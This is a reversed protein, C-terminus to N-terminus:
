EGAGQLVKAVATRAEPFPVLAQLVNVRVETWEPAILVNIQPGGEQLDGLLKAQLEIQKQIRDVARLSISHQKAARAQQLM